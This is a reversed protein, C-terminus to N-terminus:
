VPVEEGRGIIEQIPLGEDVIEPVDDGELCREKRSGEGKGLVMAENRETEVDDAEDREDRVQRPSLQPALKAQKSPDVHRQQQDDDATVEDDVVDELHAHSPRQAGMLASKPWSACPMIQNQTGAERTMKLSM